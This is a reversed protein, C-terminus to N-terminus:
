LSLSLWFLMRISSPPGCLPDMYGAASTITSTGSLGGGDQPMKLWWQCFMRKGELQVTAGPKSGGGPCLSSATKGSDGYIRAIIVPRITKGTAMQFWKQRYLVNWILDNWVIDTPGKSRKGHMIVKKEGKLHRYEPLLV